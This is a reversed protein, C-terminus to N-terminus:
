LTRKLQGTSIREPVGNIEEQVVLDRAYRHDILVTAGFRHQRLLCYRRHQRLFVLLAVQVYQRHCHRFRVYESGLRLRTREALWRRRYNARHLADHVVIAILTDENEVGITPRDCGDRDGIEHFVNQVIRGSDTSEEM